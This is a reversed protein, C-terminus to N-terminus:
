GRVQKYLEALASEAIRAAAYMGGSERQPELWAKSRLEDIMKRAALLKGAWADREEKTM